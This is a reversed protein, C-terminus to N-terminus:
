IRRGWYHAACGICFHAEIPGVDDATGLPHTTEPVEGCAVCIKGNFGCREAIENALRLSGAETAAIMADKADLDM